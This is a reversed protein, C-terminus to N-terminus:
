LRRRRCRRGIVFWTPMAGKGKLEIEGRPELAFGHGLAEAVGNRSRCGAPVSTSELRSAVNVTDGWVDFAFKRSGIIGAVIPGAHLGIACRGAMAPDGVVDLMELGLDAAASIPPPGHRDLGAVAM